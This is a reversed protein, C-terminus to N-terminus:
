GAGEDYSHHVQFSPWAVPFLPQLRFRSSRMEGTGGSLYEENDHSLFTRYQVCRLVERM